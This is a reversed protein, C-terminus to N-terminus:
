IKSQVCFKNTHYNHVNPVYSIKEIKTAQSVEDSYFCIYANLTVM